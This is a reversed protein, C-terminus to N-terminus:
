QEAGKLLEPNDYVNGLVEYSVNCISTFPYFEKVNGRSWELGFSGDKFIVKSVVLVGDFYFFLGKVIDGECIETGNKDTLGTYQGVSEPDVICIEDIEMYGYQNCYHPNEEFAIFTGIHTKIPIGEIWEDSDIRKGRFKIERM